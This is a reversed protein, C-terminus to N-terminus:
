RQYGFRNSDLQVVAHARMLRRLWRRAYAPTGLVQRHFTRVSQLDFEEPFFRLALKSNLLCRGLRIRADALIRDHDFALEGSDAIQKPDLWAAERADDSGVVPTPEPLFAMYVASITRGRPDRDIADYVGLFFPQDVLELGTEETLERLAGAKLTEDMDLFGGPFAWKGVFPDKGRRIMLVRPGEDTRAFAVLDLTLAPRPYEYVFPPPM